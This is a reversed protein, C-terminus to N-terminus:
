TSHVDVWENKGNGVRIRRTKTESNRRQRLRSNALSDGTPKQCSGLRISFPFFFPLLLLVGSVSMTFVIWEM